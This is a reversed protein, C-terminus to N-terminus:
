RYEIATEEVFNMAVRHSRNQKVPLVLQEFMEDLRLAHDYFHEGPNARNFRRHPLNLWGDVNVSEVRMGHSRLAATLRGTVYGKGSGDIGSVGVLVSRRAAVQERTALISRFVPTLEPM